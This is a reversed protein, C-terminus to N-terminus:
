VLTVLSNDSQDMLKKSDCRYSTIYKEAGLLPAVDYEAKKRHNCADLPRCRQLIQVVEKMSPRSTPLPSTCMLGLKYVSIMEELCGGEKIARDLVDAVPKGEGYSRWAWEALSTHEDGCNPERGTALELLVVGFSYVDIKENVKRTYAYEPAIYGFSGAIASMTDAEGRKALNKALGFDAVKANFDSDLLINSSKVDRHIIPPSCDHHMYCLGHAAGLAIRLRAPWDLVASNPPLAKRKSGHLWRDLSHNEMYEYVLLKSDESSICCLLKVINSHRVSGLIQVESLFEKELQRDAKAVSGIKKVAVCQAGRDVPIKYVKGSGGSGIMQSEQLRSLISAETFDLRQFSTLKWTTLDRSLKKRRYERVLFRATALTVLLLVIALVLIVALIKHSLKKSQQLRAYCSPLNSIPNRACLKPNNLFSSAYAMNDFEDPIKGALRNSSLNLSTLKLRGLEPPIDGSLQNESLDLDLLDPLSGFAAPIQGSLQNRALNLGNLSSWSVIEPPLEGSLSNGDLSLTILQNLATLGKPIPGTISNNSAKFVVLKAWSSAEAPIGGSFRNNSLELRTMNWAIRRPLEGSFRNGSLMMSTMNLGTWIGPPIEGSFQNGYLQLTRLHPCNGLSKPIEGTLNNNFAVLGFLTQGACLNEPLNGTFHNESVEFDELKSYNGMAPPLTGSLNNSFVRFSKLSPIMAISQPMEGFLNNSHLTLVELKNLKGIDEPIEGALNNMSIDLEVLNLSEITQPIVGSFKNHYLYVVSLNKLLFLGHPIEGSLENVSLDLHQLSSLNAFSQPLVGIVNAETMWLYELKTLNGFEPPIEAPALDNYALRLSVLNSLKSIEKPYSGNFLNMYLNLTILEDLEGIAPPIDGAFNNGSLDLLRLQKLRGIEVPIKGEFLNQSLDLYQLNSCNLITKPFDEFFNNFSLYLVTLNRLSSISEPVTGNLNYGSLIVGTVSGGSCQIEPWDCPSSSSNWHHLIPPDGWQQKINLLIARDATSFQQSIVLIPLSSLLLLLHLFPIKTM